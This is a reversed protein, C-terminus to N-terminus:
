FGKDILSYSNHETFKIGDYNYDYTYLSINNYIAPLYCFNDTKIRKGVLCIYIEPEIERYEEFYQYIGRVYGVAQLFTNVDIVDQKLEYVTIKLRCEYKNTVYKATILDAIGYNGIRVQRKKFGNISLGREKLFSNPTDKIIRELDKELFIM